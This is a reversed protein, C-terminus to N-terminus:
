GAVSLAVSRRMKSPVSITVQVPAHTAEEGRPGRMPIASAPPQSLREIKQFM